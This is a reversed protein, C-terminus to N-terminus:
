WIHLFDMLKSNLVDIFMYLPMFLKCTLSLFKTMNKTINIIIIMNENQKNCLDKSEGKFIKLDLRYTFICNCAILSSATIQELAIMLHLFGIIEGDPM